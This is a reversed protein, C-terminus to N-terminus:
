RCRFSERLPLASRGVNMLEYPPWWGPLNALRQRWAYIAPFEREIDFGTEAALYFLYGALSFDVITPREGLMFPRKGLHEDVIGFANAVRAEFYALLTPHSPETTLTGLFFKNAPM